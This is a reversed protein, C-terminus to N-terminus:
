INCQEIMRPAAEELARMEKREKVGTCNAQVGHFPSSGNRVTRKMTKNCHVGVRWDMELGDGILESKKTIQSTIMRITIQSIVVNRYTQELMQESM